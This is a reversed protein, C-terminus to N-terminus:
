LSISAVYPVSKQKNLPNADTISPKTNVICSWVDSSFYLLDTKIGIIVNEHINSKNVWSMPGPLPKARQFLNLQLEFRFVFSKMWSLANSGTMQTIATIKDPHPTHPTHHTHTHTHTHTHPPPPPPPLFASPPRSNFCRITISFCYGNRTSGGNNRCKTDKLLVACTTLPRQARSDGVQCSKYRRKKYAPFIM